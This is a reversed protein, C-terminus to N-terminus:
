ILCLAVAGDAPLGRNGFPPLNQQLLRNSAYVQRSDSKCGYRQWSDEIPNLGGRGILRQGRAFPHGAESAASLPVTERNGVMAGIKESVAKARPEVCPKGCTKRNASVGEFRFPALYLSRRQDGPWVGLMQIM